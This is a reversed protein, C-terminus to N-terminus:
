PDNWLIKALRVRNPEEIREKPFAMESSIVWTERASVDVPAFGGGLDVGSEPMLVQETARVVCLRTPDVEAIFIPARHRFVHDNNAGRRTYLLYLKDKHAVWHQQTNYSGLVKGDDYTWEVMPEYNLGDQSRAVFASHDARMTLFYHGNFGILSPEYLGRQRPITLESGHEHYILTKGDFSCRAVITTYQRTKPDKRYRIPLLIKGDPLDFRQHCGANSELMPLGEHDKEPLALVNLGSWENNTPNFVAYSVRELSRDEKVGGRFGFTKGTALVLRTAAHWQPCVDGIVFEHGEPMRTRRLSDILRPATWTQGGDTTETMFLDRYGHAGKKEIQQTTLIVRPANEPIIAARSQAWHLGGSSTLVISQEIRFAPEASFASVLGYLALLLLFPSTRM